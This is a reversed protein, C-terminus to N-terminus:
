TIPEMLKTLWKLIKVCNMDVFQTRLELLLVNRLHNSRLHNSISSWQVTRSRCFCYDLFMFFSIWFVCHLLYMCSTLLSGCNMGLLFLFQFGHQFGLLWLVRRSIERCWQPLIRYWVPLSFCAFVICFALIGGVQPHCQEWVWGRASCFKGPALLPPWLM